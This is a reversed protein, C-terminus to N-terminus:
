AYTCRNTSVHQKHARHLYVASIHATHSHTHTNHMHAQKRVSATQTCPTPACCMYTRHPFTHTHTHTHTHYHTMPQPSPARPPCAPAPPLERCTSQESPTQAGGRGANEAQICCPARHADVVACLRKVLLRPPTLGM